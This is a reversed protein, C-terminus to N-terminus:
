EPRGPLGGSERQAIDRVAQSVSAGLAFQEKYADRPIRRKGYRFEMEARCEAYFRTWSKPQNTPATRSDTPSGTTDM